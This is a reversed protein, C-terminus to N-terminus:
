PSHPRNVENKACRVRNLAKRSASKTYPKSSGVLLLYLSKSFQESMIVETIGGSSGMSSEMATLVERMARARLPMYQVSGNRIGNPPLTQKTPQGSLNQRISKTDDTLQPNIM